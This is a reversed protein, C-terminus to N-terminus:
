GWRARRLRIVAVSGSELYELYLRMNFFGTIARTPTKQHHPDSAADGKGYAASGFVYIERAGATKLEAAARKILIDTETSV